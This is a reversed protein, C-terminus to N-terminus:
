IKIFEGDFLSLREKEIKIDFDGFACRVIDGYDQIVRGIQGAWLSNDCIVKQGRKYNM